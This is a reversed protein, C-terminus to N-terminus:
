RTRRREYCWQDLLSGARILASALWQLAIM